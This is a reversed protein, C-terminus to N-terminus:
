EITLEQRHRGLRDRKRAQPKQQVRDALHWISTTAFALAGLTLVM